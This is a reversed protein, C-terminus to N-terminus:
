SKSAPSLAAAIAFSSFASSPRKEGSFKQVFSITRSSTSLSFFYLSIGAYVRSFMICIDGVSDRSLTLPPVGKCLCLRQPCIIDASPTYIREALVQKPPIVMSFSVNITTPSPFGPVCYAWVRWLAPNSVSSISQRLHPTVSFLLLHLPSSVSVVTSPLRTTRQAGCVNMFREPSHTLSSSLQYLTGSSFRSIM